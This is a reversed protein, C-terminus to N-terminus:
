SSLADCERAHRAAGCRLCVCAVVRTHMPPMMVYVSAYACSLLVHICVYIPDTGHRYVCAPACACVIAAAADDARAIARVPATCATCGCARGYEDRVCTCIYRYINTYHMCIHVYSMCDYIGDRSRAAIGVCTPARAHAHGCTQACARARADATVAAWLPGRRM